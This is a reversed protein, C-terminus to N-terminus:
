GMHRITSKQFTEGVILGNMCVFEILGAILKFASAGEHSNMLVIEPAAGVMGFSDAKRLRIMHKQFGDRDSGRRVRAQSGSSPIWGAEGLVNLVRLTPIFQYKESTRTLHRGNQNAVSSLALANAM